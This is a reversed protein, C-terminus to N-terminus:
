VVELGRSEEAEVPKPKEKPTATPKGVGYELCRQIAALREASKLDDFPGQGLAAKLLEKALKPAADRFQAEADEVKEEPSKLAELEREKARQAARAKGGKVAMAKAEEPTWPM